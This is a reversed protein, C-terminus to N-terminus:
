NRNIQNANVEEEILKKIKEVMDGKKHTKEKLNKKELFLVKRKLTEVLELDINNM